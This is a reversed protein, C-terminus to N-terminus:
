VASTDGETSCNRVEHQTTFTREGIRRRGESALTVFICIDVDWAGNIFGVIRVTNICVHM